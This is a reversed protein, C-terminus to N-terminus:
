RGLGPIFMGGPPRQQTTSTTTTTAGKPVVVQEGESLGSVVETHQWDSIGTQISRKETIGDKSVQVYTQNGQRTIANNPVLLVNAKKAVLINVTVSLGERLQFGEPIVPAAQASQQGAQGQEMMKQAQEPTLRGEAIAQKLREPLEGPETKQAAEQRATQQQMVEELPQLEVKVQYNVVGSQITATPAIHTVKAPLSLGAMSDVQVSAEGDLKVKSIDMESVLIGAEFKNPDAIQVAVTGNLVEDGGEVNVQTIFGAFPAKIEPSKGQADTLKKQADDLTKQADEVDHKADEIALQAYEVDYKADEVDYKADDVATKADDVATQADVLEMQSQEVELQSKAVELAVDDEVTLSSGDLIDELDQQAEALQEEALTKLNSWYSVDGHLGGGFEGSLISKAFDLAYQADDVVDQAKKVDDIESLDYEATQVNIQAQRVAFEKAAVEREAETVANEKATVQRELDTVQREAKIVASEMDTLNRQAATLKKDLTSLEDSWEDPDVTVLVQGQEVVDGEEVLVEGVTGKVGTPYFLQIPLDQITSLALNGAATIEVTLDGRQVATIQDETAGTGSSSSSCGSQPIVVGILVFAILAIKVMRKMNRGRMEKIPAIIEAV